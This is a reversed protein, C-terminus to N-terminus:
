KRGIALIKDLENEFTEEDGENESEENVIPLEEHKIDELTKNRKLFNNFDNLSTIM